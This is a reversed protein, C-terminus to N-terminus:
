KSDHRDSAPDKSGDHGKPAASLDPFKGDPMLLRLGPAMNTNWDVSDLDQLRRKHAGRPLHTTSASIDTPATTPPSSLTDTEITMIRTSVSPRQSYKTRRGYLRGSLSHSSRRWISTPRSSQRLLPASLTIRGPDCYFNLSSCSCLTIDSDVYMYRSPCISIHLDASPSPGFQTIEMPTRLPPCPPTFFCAQCTAARLHIVAPQTVFRASLDIGPPCTSCQACQRSTLAEAVPHYPSTSAAIWSADRCRGLRALLLRHKSIPM